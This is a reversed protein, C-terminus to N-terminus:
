AGRQPPACPQRQVDPPQEVRYLFPYVKRAEPPLTSPM